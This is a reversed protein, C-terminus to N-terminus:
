IYGHVGGDRIYVNPLLNILVYIWTHISEKSLYFSKSWKAESTSITKLLIFIIKKLWVVMSHPSPFKEDKEIGSRIFDKYEVLFFPNSNLKWAYRNLVDTTKKSFTEKSLIFFNIQFINCFYFFNVTSFEWTTPSVRDHLPLLFSTSSATTKTKNSM